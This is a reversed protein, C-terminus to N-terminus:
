TPWTERPLVLTDSADTGSGNRPNPSTVSSPTSEPGSTAPRAPSSPPPPGADDEGASAGDSEFRIKSWFPSDLMREYLGPVEAPTIRGARHLAIGALVAFLEPDGGRFAEEVTLPLYGALRKIWGWERTTFSLESDLEWRGDYPPFQEIVIWDM